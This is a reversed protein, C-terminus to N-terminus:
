RPGKKSKISPKNKPKMLGLPDSKYKVTIERKFGEFLKRNNNNQTERWRPRGKKTQMGWHISFLPALVRFKWGAVLMEYAQTNRTFGYGVFREDHAPCSDKSVYFPEYFFEFKVNHSIFVPLQSERDKRLWEQVNKQWQSFNTSYQNHIFVKEHFPRARSTSVLQLIESANTPLPAKEDIEYTPIVFACKECSKAAHTRLFADLKEFMGPPPVIDVDVLFVWEPHCNKRAVNRLLNQPYPLTERWSMMNRPRHELLKKLVTVPQDCMKLIDSTDIHLHLPPKEKPYAFHVTIKDGVYPFCSALFQFYTKAIGYELDPTFVAISIPGVWHRAVQALWFLRDVSSQTALTVHSQKALVSYHQGSYVSDHIKYQRRNDWRGFADDVSFAIRHTQHDKKDHPLQDHCPIRHLSDTIVNSDRLFALYSSLNIKKMSELDSSLDPMGEHCTLSDVRPSIMKFTLFINSVSLVVVGVVSLSWVRCLMEKFWAGTSVKVVSKVVHKKQFPMRLRTMIKKWLIEHKGLHTRAIGDMTCELRASKHRHLILIGVQCPQRPQSM